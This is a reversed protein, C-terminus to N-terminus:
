APFHQTAGKTSRNDYGTHWRSRPRHRDGSTHRRLTDQNSIPTDTIWTYTGYGGRMDVTGMGALVRANSPPTPYNGPIRYVEVDVGHEMLIDWFPTGSRNNTVEPSSIPLTYGFFNVSWGDDEVPPTASSIPDYTKPDRHIFDFLGHGRPDMGTVFTSWAVPSQPPTTTELERFDGTRTMEKIEPLKGEAILRRTIDPDMGDVGLVFVSPPSPQANAIYLGGCLLLGVGFTVVRKSM